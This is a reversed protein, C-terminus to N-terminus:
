RCNPPCLEAATSPAVYELTVAPASHFRLAAQAYGISWCGWLAAFMMALLLGRRAGRSSFWTNM